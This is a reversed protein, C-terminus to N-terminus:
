LGFVGTQAMSLAQTENVMRCRIYLGFYPESGLWGSSSEEEWEHIGM